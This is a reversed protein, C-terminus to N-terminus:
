YDLMEYSLIEMYKKRIDQCNEVSVKKEKLAQEWVVAHSYVLYDYHNSSLGDGRQEVWNKMIQDHEAKITLYTDKPMVVRIARPWAKTSSAEMKNYDLPHVQGPDGPYFFKTWWCLWLFIEPKSAGHEKTVREVDRVLGDREKTVREIDRVLRDREETVREVDGVLWDREKTVQEFHSWKASTLLLEECVKSLEEKLGNQISDFEGLFDM